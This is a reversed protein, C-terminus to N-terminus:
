KISRNKKWIIRPKRKSLESELMGEIQDFEDRTIPRVETYIEKCVVNIRYSDFTYVGEQTYELNFLEVEYGEYIDCDSQLSVTEFKGKIEYCHFEMNEPKPGCLEWFSALVTTEGNDQYYIQVAVDDYRYQSLVDVIKM